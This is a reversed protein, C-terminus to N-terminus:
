TTLPLPPESPRAPRGAATAVVVLWAAAAIVFEVLAVAPTVTLDIAAMATVWAAAVVGMRWAISRGLLASVFAAIPVLIPVLWLIMPRTAGLPGIWYTPRGVNGSTVGVATQAAVVLAWSIVAIM